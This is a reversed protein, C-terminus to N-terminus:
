PRNSKINLLCFILFFLAGTLEFSEEALGLFDRNDAHFESLFPLIRAMSDIIKGSVLMGLGLLIAWSQPHFGWLKKIWSPLQKVLFFVAYILFLIVVGGIIKEFLPTEPSIYFRSKLISDTTWERHLDLERMAALIMLSAFIFDSKKRGKIWFAFGLLGAMGFLFATATEVFGGENSFEIWLFDNSYFFGYGLFLGLSLFSLITYILFVKHM